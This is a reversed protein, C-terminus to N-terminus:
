STGFSMSSSRSFGGKGVGSQEEDEEGNSDDETDDQSEQENEKSLFRQDARLTKFAALNAYPENTLPDLYKAPLGTIVCLPRKVRKRGQEDQVNAKLIEPM